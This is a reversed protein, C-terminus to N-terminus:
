RRFSRSAGSFLEFGFSNFRSVTLLVYHGITVKIMPRILFSQSELLKEVAQRRTAIHEDTKPQSNADLRKYKKNKDNVDIDIAKMTTTLDFVRQYLALPDDISCGRAERAM